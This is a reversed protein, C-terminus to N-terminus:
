EAPMSEPHLALAQLCVTRHEPGRSPPISRGPLRLGYNVAEREACLVQGSLVSLVSEPELDPFSQYDLWITSSREAAFRKVMLGRGRAWAKWDLRKFSDGPRHEVLDQFDGSGSSRGHSQQDDNRDNNDPLPHNPSQVPKPYVLCAMDPRIWSWAQVLGLPYTSSVKLQGLRRRGREETPAAVTVETTRAALLDFRSLPGNERLCVATRARGAEERILLHFLAPQGAFVDQSRGPLITLGALTRFTHIVSVALTSLLLFALAYALNNGYNIAGILVALCLLGFIWGFKTPLLFIRRHTLPVPQETSPAGKFLLRAAAFRNSSM